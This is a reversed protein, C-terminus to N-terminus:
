GGQHSKVRFSGATMRMRGSTTSGRSVFATENGNRVRGVGQVELGCGEEDEVLM